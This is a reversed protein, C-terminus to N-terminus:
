ATSPSTPPCADEPRAFSIHVAPLGDYVLALREDSATRPDVGGSRGALGSALLVARKAAAAEAPETVTRATGRRTRRGIAVEVSPDAVLNRYWRTEAGWGAMIWIGGDPAAAYDLAAERIKGTQRGHTRLVCM